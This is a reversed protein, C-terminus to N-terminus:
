TELDYSEFEFANTGEYYLLAEGSNAVCVLLSFLFM